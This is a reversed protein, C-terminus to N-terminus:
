TIADNYTAALAGTRDIKIAVEVMGDPAQHLQQCRDNLVWPYSGTGAPVEIMSQEGNHEVQARSKLPEDTPTDSKTQFHSVEGARAATTRPISRSGRGNFNFEDM